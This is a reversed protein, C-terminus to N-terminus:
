KVETIKIGYIAEVLKKKLIYERTKFGKVDILSKSGNAYTVLFDGKYTCIKKGNVEIPYKPQREIEVVRLGGVAKKQIELLQAYNAEAKSDYTVGNFITKKANYKSRKGM